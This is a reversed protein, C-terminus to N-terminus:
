VPAGGVPRADVSGPRRELIPVSADVSEDLSDDAGVAAAVEDLRALTNETEDESVVGLELEAQFWYALSSGEPCGDEQWIRYARLEVQERTAM